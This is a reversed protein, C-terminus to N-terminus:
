DDFCYKDYRCRIHFNGADIIFHEGSYNSDPHCESIGISVEGIKTDQFDDPNGVILYQVLYYDMYGEIPDSPLLVEFPREIDVGISLLYEAVDPYSRKIEDIFNQCYICNCIDERKIEAYYAKTREIDM